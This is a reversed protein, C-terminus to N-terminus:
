KKQENTQISDRILPKLFRNRPAEGFFSSLRQHLSPDNILAGLTGQGADIKKMVSTMPAIAGRAEKMFKTMEDTAEVMNAAFRASRQDRNINEFLIRVEKIVNVIEGMEAGKSAILDLFDPTNDSAQIAGDLLPKADSPGPEIYVYKDGLAGQTKVSAKSGETIRHQVNENVSLVVEVDSSQPLFNVSDINGVPVGTLSVVSGTGLGQVQPLRVKLQYTSTFFWKDGGLLIISLCFLVVGVVAFIGVKIEKVLSSEM